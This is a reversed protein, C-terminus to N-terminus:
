PKPSPKPSGQGRLQIEYDIYHDLIDRTQDGVFPRGNIFLTPTNRVLLQTAEQLSAEVAPRTTEQKRCAQFAPLDLGAQAAFADLRADLNDKNLTKQNEFFFDHLKWFAQNSQQFACQGAIAGRLAWDHIRTLPLDKYVLRVDKREAMLKKLIPSAAACDPCQFDGYEVITVPADAPGKSPHGATVITDRAEAFPDETTDYFDGRVLYRGDASVLVVERGRREGQSVDVIASYLGAIASERLATVKVQTEPGWAFLYRLFVEVRRAMAAQAEESLGPSPAGTQALLGAATALLGALLLCILIAQHKKM